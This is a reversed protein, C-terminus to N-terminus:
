AGFGPVFGGLHGEAVESGGIEPAVVDGLSQEGHHPPTLGLSGPDAITSVGYGGGDM